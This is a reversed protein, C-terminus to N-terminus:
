GLEPIPTKHIIDFPVTDVQTGRPKLVGEMNWTLWVRTTEETGALFALEDLHLEYEENAKVLFDGQYKDGYAGYEVTIDVDTNNKVNIVPYGMQATKEENNSASIDTELGFSYCTSMCFLMMVIIVKKLM